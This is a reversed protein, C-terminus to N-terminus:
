WREQLNISCERGSLPISAKSRYSWLERIWIAQQHSATLAGPCLFHTGESSRTLIVPYSVGVFIPSLLFKDHENM